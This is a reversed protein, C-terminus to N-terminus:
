GGHSLLGIGTWRFRGKGEGSTAREHVFGRGKLRGGFSRQPLPHVNSDRCWRDYEAYVQTAWGWFDGGVLCCEEIFDSVPDSEDRYADTAARVADPVGLGERQWALCGDVAWRLIGPLEAALKEGLHKDQEADPITVTFPILRIRRWIAHDTGRIVPRHNAALWLKFTPEFSFHESYLFRAKVRDGGTLSKVLSEALRQGEEAEIASVFRAGRLDAVDNRPGGGRRVLFTEFSAENAYDGFLRALTRVFVSKGNAGTGYLLFLCQESTDGTLSYGVARQLFAILDTNGAMIRDLFTLWLQCGADPEHDVPALKTILHARDHDLREGTRLDLTGNNVTLLMPDRDLHDPLVQVAREAEALRVMAGRRHESESRAAHSLLDSRRTDDKENYAELATRRITDKARRRVEGTEDRAWRTGDWVFWARLPHCYRIDRGHDAVLREANGTDTLAYHRGHRDREPEPEYQADSRAIRRVEDESLPPQCREENVVLLAAAIETASMGRRRMTGGLSTLTTNRQGEPITEAVPPATQRRDERLLALLSPPPQALAEFDAGPGFSYSGLGTTSPPVVVLGGDCRLDVLPVGFANTKSPLRDPTTPRRFYYHRGGSPTEVIVAAADLGHEVVFACAAESEGLEARPKGTDVDVVFLGTRRGTPLAVNAEPWTRWWERILAGDTTANAYDKGARFRPHKGAHSCERRCSCRGADDVSHLPLVPYGREAWELAADLPPQTQAFSM